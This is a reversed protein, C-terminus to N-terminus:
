ILRQVDGALFVTELLLRFDHLRQLSGGLHRQIGHKTGARSGFGAGDGARAVAPTGGLSDGLTKRLHLLVWRPLKSTREHRGASLNGKRHLECRV